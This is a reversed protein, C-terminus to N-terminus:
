STNYQVILLRLVPGNEFLFLGLMSNLQLKENLKTSYELFDKVKNRASPPAVVDFDAALQATLIYILWSLLTM